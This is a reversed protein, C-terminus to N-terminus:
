GIFLLCQNLLELFGGGVQVLHEIIDHTTAAARLPVQDRQEGLQAKIEM